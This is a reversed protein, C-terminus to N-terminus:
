FAIFVNSNLAIIQPQSSVSTSIVGFFKIWFCMTFATTTTLNYTTGSIITLDVPTGATSVPVKFYYNTVATCTSGILVYGTACEYCGSAANSYCKTCASACSSSSVAGAATMSTIYKGSNAAVAGWDFTTSYNYMLYSDVNLNKYGSYITTYIIPDITTSVINVIKDQDIHDITLPYYLILSQLTETFLHNSYSQVLWETASSVDWVRFNRYYASGWEVTTGTATCPGDGSVSCFSLSSLQMSVSTSIGTTSYQASALNYNVFVYVSQVGNIITTKIMIRNWEYPAISTLGGKTATNVINYWYAAGDYYISHPPAYLYYTNGTVPTCLNENYVNDRKYWFELIHGATLKNTTTSSFNIYINPTKMCRSFFMASQTVDNANCTYNIKTYLSTCAFNTNIAQLISSSGNPCSSMGTGCTSNCIANLYYSGPTRMLTTDVCSGQCKTYPSATAGAVVSLYTTDRCVMPSDEDYCYWSELTGGNCSNIPACTGATSDYKNYSSNPDCFPLSVFNAALAFSATASNYLSLTTTKTQM